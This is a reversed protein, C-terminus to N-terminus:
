VLLKSDNTTTSHTISSDGHTSDLLKTFLPQPTTILHIIINDMDSSYTVRQVIQGLGYCTLESDEYQSVLKDANKEIIEKIKENSPIGYNFRSLLLPRIEMDSEEFDVMPITDRLTFFANKRDPHQESQQRLQMYQIEESKLTNLLLWNCM